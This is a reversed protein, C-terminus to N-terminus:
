KRRLEQRTEDQTWWGTRGVSAEEEETIPEAVQLVRAAVSVEQWTRRACVIAIAGFVLANVHMTLMSLITVIPSIRLIDGYPRGYPVSISLQEHTFWVAMAEFFIGGGIAAGLLWRATRLSLPRPQEVPAYHKAKNHMRLWFVMLALHIFVALGHTLHYGSSTLLMCILAILAQLISGMVGIRYAALPM